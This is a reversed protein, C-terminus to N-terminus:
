FLDSKARSSYKTREEQLREEEEEEDVWTNVQLFTESDETHKLRSYLLGLRTWCHGNRVIIYM